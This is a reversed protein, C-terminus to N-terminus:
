GRSFVVDSLPHAALLFPGTEQEGVDRGLVPNGLTMGQELNPPVRILGQVTKIRGVAPEYRSM